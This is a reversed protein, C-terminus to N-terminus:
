IHSLIPKKHTYHPCMNSGKAFLGVGMQSEHKAILPEVKLCKIALVEVLLAGMERGLAM